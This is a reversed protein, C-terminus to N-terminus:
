VGKDLVLRPKSERSILGDFQCFSGVRYLNSQPLIEKQAKLAMDDNLAVGVKISYLGVTTRKIMEKHVVAKRVRAALAKDPSEFAAKTTDNGGQHLPRKHPGLKSNHM